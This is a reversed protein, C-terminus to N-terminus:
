QAPRRTDIVKDGKMEGVLINNVLRITHGIQVPNKAHPGLLWAATIIAVPMMPKETLKWNADMSDQNAPWMLPPILLVCVESTNTPAFVPSNM